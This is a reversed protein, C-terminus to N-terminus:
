LRLSLLGVTNLAYVAVVRDWATGDHPDFGVNKALGRALFDVRQAVEAASRSKGTVGCTYPSKSGSFAKRGAKDTNIFDAVSISDPIDAKTLNSADLRPNPPYTSPLQPAWSPPNFTM